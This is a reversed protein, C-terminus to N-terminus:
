QGRLAQIADQAVERSIPRPQGESAEYEKSWLVKGTVPSTLRAIAKVNQTGQVSGSLVAGGPSVEVGPVSRLAEVLDTSFEATAGTFPEVQLRVPPLHRPNGRTSIWWGAMLM